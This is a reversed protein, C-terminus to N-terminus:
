IYKCDYNLHCQIIYIIEMLAIAQLHPGETSAMKVNTSILIFVQSVSYSSSSNLPWGSSPSVISWIITIFFLILFKLIALHHFINNLNQQWHGGGYSFATTAKSGAWAVNRELARDYHVHGERSGMLFRLLCQSCCLPSQWWRRLLTNKCSEIFRSAMFSLTWSTLHCGSPWHAYVVM